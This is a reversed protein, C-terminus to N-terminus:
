FKVDIKAYEFCNIIKNVCSMFRGGKAVKNNNRVKVKNVDRISHYRISMKSALPIRIIILFSINFFIVYFHYFRNFDSTRKWNSENITINM